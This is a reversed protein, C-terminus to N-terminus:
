RENYEQCFIPDIKEFTVQTLENLNNQQQELLETAAYPNERSHINSAKEMGQWINERIIKKIKKELYEDM